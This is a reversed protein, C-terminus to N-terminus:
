LVESVAVFVRLFTSLSFDATPLSATGHHTEKGNIGCEDMLLLVSTKLGTSAFHSM